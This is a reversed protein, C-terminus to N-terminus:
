LQYAFDYYHQGNEIRIDMKGTLGELEGTGSKPVVELTLRRDGDGMLGFHQLVFSGKKGELEGTVQEIAVYGAAGEVPSLANLMEGKSVASLGGSFTKDISMRGLKVGDIGTAYTELPKMVLDFKGSIM